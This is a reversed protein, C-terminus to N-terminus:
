YRFFGRGSKKGLFGARVMKRLLTPPRYKQDGFERFLTEMKALHIDLGILDLLHLPGIPLNAGLRIAIDIDEVSAVGEALLFIAENLMVGQIRSVIGGASEKLVIPTKGLLEAVKKTADITKKSTLIGPSIEILKMAWVPNFFHMGIFEEPNKLVSSLETISISTTNSAFIVCDSRYQDIERIIKKKIESDESVTEVIFDVEKIQQISQLPYIRSLYRKKEEKDIKGKDVIRLLSEEIKSIGNQVIKQNVDKIFVEFGRQAAVQSIQLGMVGAGVVLIKKIEM